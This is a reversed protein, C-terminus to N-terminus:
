HAPEGPPDFRVLWAEPSLKQLVTSRHATSRALDVFYRQPMWVWAPKPAAETWEPVSHGLYYELGFQLSRDTGLISLQGSSPVQESSIRAAQRASFYPDLRPLIKVNAVVGLTAILIALGAIAAREWRLLALLACVIGGASGLVLIPMWAGAANMGSEVPLRRLELPSLLALLPFSFGICAVWLRAGFGGGDMLRSLAHAMLLVLIPEAPLIYGPLKSESFSFFVLPVIVWCAFFLTPSRRWETSGRKAGILMPVILLTWPFVEGLLVPVFFWFPQSHQFIPTLYRQFNHEIFFVHLFEPNRAACLAYWPVATALFAAICAPHFFRLAAGIRGAVMAWLLVSGGALLVAAPGKALAAAGLLFGFAINAAIGSRQKQLMDAALAACATLLAAFLMDGGASHSFGLLGVTVPLMLLTLRAAGLGYARLAAWAAALSALVAGLVSPLRMPLEGEGFLRYAFGALWYYLAPKEFWPEGNLRPTIWDGTHAMARAIAAYRPEDPGTLGIATIGGGFCLLM